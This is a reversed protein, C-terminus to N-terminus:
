QVNYNELKSM